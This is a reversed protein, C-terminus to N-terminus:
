CDQTDAYTYLKFHDLNAKVWAFYGRELCSVQLKFIFSQVFPFQLKCLGMSLKDINKTVVM